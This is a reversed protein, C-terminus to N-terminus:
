LWPVPHLGTGFYLAAASMASAIGAILRRDLHAPAVVPMTPKSELLM